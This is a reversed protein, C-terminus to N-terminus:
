NNLKIINKCKAIYCLLNNDKGSFIPKCLKNTYLLFGNTEYFNKLQDIDKCELYILDLGICKYVVKITELAIFLLDSGSITANLTNTYNKSIQGILVASLVTIDKGNTLSKRKTNSLSKSIFFPKNTLTFYGCLNFDNTNNFYGVLYTRSSLYDNIELNVAKHKIFYVIDEDFPCSFDSILKNFSKEGFLSLYENLSFTIFDLKSM